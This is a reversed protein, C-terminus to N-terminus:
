CYYYIHLNNASSVKRITKGAPVADPQKTPPVVYPCAVLEGKDDCQGCNKTVDYTPTWMANCQSGTAFCKMNLTHTIADYTDICQEVTWADTLAKKKNRTTYCKNLPFEYGTATFTQKAVTATVTAGPYAYAWLLSQFDGGGTKNLITKQATGAAAADATVVVYRYL